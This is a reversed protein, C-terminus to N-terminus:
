ASLPWIWAAESWALLARHLQAVEWAPRRRRRRRRQQQVADVAMEELVVARWAASCLGQPQRM